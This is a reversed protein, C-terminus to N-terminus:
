PQQRFRAEFVLWAGIKWFMISAGKGAFIIMGFKAVRLITAGSAIRLSAILRRWHVVEMTHHVVDNSPCYRQNRKGFTKGQSTTVMTTAHEMKREWSPWEFWCTSISTISNICHFWSLEVVLTAQKFKTVLKIFVVWIVGFIIWQFM